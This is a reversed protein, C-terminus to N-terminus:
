KANQLISKNAYASDYSSLKLLLFVYDVSFDLLLSGLPMAYLTFLFPDLVSGQPVVFNM